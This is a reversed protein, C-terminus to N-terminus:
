YIFTEILNDIIKLLKEEVMQYLLILIYVNKLLTNGKLVFFKIIEKVLFFIINVIVIVM